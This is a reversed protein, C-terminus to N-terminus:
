RAGRARRAPSARSPWRRRRTRWCSAAHGRVRPPPLVEAHVHPGHGGRHLPRAPRPGAGGRRPVRGAAARGVPRPVQGQHGGRRPRGGRPHGGPVGAGRARRGRRRAREGGRLGHRRERQARGGPRPLVPARQRLHVPVRRLHLPVGRHGAGPAAPRDPTGGAGRPARAGRPWPRKTPRRRRPSRTPRCTSSSLRDGQRPQRPQPVRGRRRLAPHPLQGARRREPTDLHRRPRVRPRPLPGLAPGRRAGHGPDRRARARLRHRLERERRRRLRRRDVNTAAEEMVLDLRGVEEAPFGTERAYERVFGQVMPLFALSSPVTLACRRAQTGPGHDPM